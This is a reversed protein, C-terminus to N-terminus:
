NTNKKKSKKIKNKKYQAFRVIDDESGEDRRRAAAGRRLVSAVTVAVDAVFVFDQLVYAVIGEFSLSGVALALLASEAAADTVDWCGVDFDERGVYKLSM